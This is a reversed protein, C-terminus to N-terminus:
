FCGYIKRRDPCTILHQILNPLLSPFNGQTAKGASQGHCNCNSGMTGLHSSLPSSVITHQGRPTFLNSKITRPPDSQHNHPAWSHPKWAVESTLCSCHSLQKAAKKKKKILCIFTYTEYLWVSHVHKQDPYPFILIVKIGNNSSKM